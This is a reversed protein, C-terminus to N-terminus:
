TYVTPCWVQHLYCPEGDEDYGSAEFDFPTIVAFLKPKNEEESFDYARTASGPLGDQGSLNRIGMNEEDEDDADNFDFPRIQPAKATTQAFSSGIPRTHDTFDYPEHTSAASEGHGSADGLGMRQRKDETDDFNFPTVNPGSTLFISENPRGEMEAISSEYPGHVAAPATTGPHSPGRIDMREDEDETDDFQFPTITPWSPPFMSETLRGEIDMREDDEDEANFDLPTIQAADSDTARQFFDRRTPREEPENEDSSECTEYSASTASGGPGSPDRLDIKEQDEEQADIFDVITIDMQSFNGGTPRAEFESGNSVKSPEDATATTTRDQNSPEGLRMARADERVEDGFKFLMKESRINELNRREFSFSRELQMERENADGGAMPNRPTRHVSIIGEQAFTAVSESKFLFYPVLFFNVNGADDAAGDDQSDLDWQGPVFMASPTLTQPDSAQLGVQFKLFLALQLM